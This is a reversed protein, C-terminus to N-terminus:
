QAREKYSRIRQELRDNERRLRITQINIIIAYGSALITFIYGLTLATNGEKYHWYAGFASAVFLFINFVLLGAIKNM